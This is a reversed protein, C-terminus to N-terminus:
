SESRSEPPQSRPAPMTGPMPFGFPSFPVLWLNRRGPVKDADIIIKERNALAAALSEWYSRFDLLMQQQALAEDRRRLYEEGVEAASRGKGMEKWAASFLRWEEAVSLRHRLRYRGEFGSQDAHAFLIKKQAAAETERVQKLGEAQQRREWRLVNEQGINIRKDREEMAKTVDHYAAVVDQPPHLDHLDLGELRIGMGNGGYDSCRQRLRELAADQFRGRDITLLDAFPRGAVTERLVSEAAGRLIAEPDATEFLYARPNAITYRLTGQLELLNGDGTIMVAEESLRRVGAGAHLSSWSGTSPGGRGAVTRFGIEITHVRRPQVRTVTDIPWPWCWHLGPDLDDPLPRGFHRVVGIEDAAIATFGSLAWGGLLLLLLGALVPKWQHSLWHAAEDLDLRHELWDNARRLGGFLRQFFPSAATREFWLLRMANLLVALSGLQHYVVAAVPSQEYWSAPVLLPWLWATFVIGVANVGFAFIVINQHIIRVTERSLRLLLPLHRLPDSMFVVDGAEAAIDAGTGGIALGVDARALAPADNIGDGVMGVRKGAQQWGAIFESKQPPLLEAHVEILALSEAVSRAVAARDGTLLAIDTIGMARLEALVSAAESRLRDRAGLAGLVRGQRAVFLVTHGAADLRELAAQAEPPLTLGQEELLRKNGVIVTELGASQATVGIGPFSRFEAIPEPSLQRRAAEQVILRALLHESHQEATAATRLLEEDAVGEFPVIESLELRGETLTGTKDFAFATVAALRELASGGKILIGTGALRGLAAIIAAPTALILACPCAVVLVSLAPLTVLQRFSLNTEPPRMWGTSYGIWCVLFTLASLSLVAPLFYRALRDATRELPAKDKLARSTLEIVRGVVTHEAVRRAEVTLAGLQNLSGALVEDGPGKDVPLSEGTLASVDVASRGELVIGDAPVRGGPKVVVRDGVRLDGVLVREEQGDRLRWCRRPCIEVIRRIARQTREFTISELCEGLMGIFVIEAAVLPEQVLIAAVAAIAVALDAGIRGELLSNLSGYLTRAGGLIAALLAIRYGYPENSWTPLSPGWTAIWRAAVPWVDAGILLGLLGTLLYLGLRSEPQFAHDAHSIERHM